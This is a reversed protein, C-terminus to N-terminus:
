LIATAVLLPATLFRGAMFDGGIKVVYVLYLLVGAFLFIQKWNRQLYLTVGALGITFFLIPDWNISNLLYDLGQFILASNPVGTSLKAFATNPVPFGFYMLSFVEWLL